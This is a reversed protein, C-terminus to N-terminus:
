GKRGEESRGRGRRTWGDNRGVRRGKMAM